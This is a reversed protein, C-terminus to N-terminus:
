AMLRTDVEARKARLQYGGVIEGSPSLDKLPLTAEAPSPAAAPTTQSNLGQTPNQENTETTTM